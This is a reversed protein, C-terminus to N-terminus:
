LSSGFNRSNAPVYTNIKADVPVPAAQGNASTLQSTPSGAADIWGAGSRGNAEVSLKYHSGAFATKLDALTAASMAGDSASGSRTLVAAIRSGSTQYVNGDAIAGGKFISNGAVDVAPSGLYTYVCLPTRGGCPTWGSSLPGAQNAIVNNVFMEITPTWTLAPTLNVSGTPGYAGPRAMDFDSTYPVNCASKSDGGAGYRVSHDSCWRDVAGNGDSDYRKSRPDTYVGVGVPAGVITNNVLRVGSSGALRVASHGEEEAGTTPAKIYNNVMTLGHSIEYFVSTHSSNTIRNNAVTVDYSSQDWWLGHGWVDQIVSGVVKMRHSKGSKIAGSQPGRSFDRHANIAAFSSARVEADDTYTFVAGMWGADEVSVREFLARRALAAGGSSSGGAVKFSIGANSSFAVDRVTLDDVGSTVILAYKGWSPSHRKVQFGVLRVGDAAVHIFNGNSSSVRVKSLDIADEATVYMRTAAPAPDTGSARDVWFTGPVVKAKDAVQTLLRGDVWVQDPYFATIVHAASTCGDPDASTPSPSTYTSSGTVCRWGKAAALGTPTAGSFKAAPLNALSLGEGIAAPMPQYTFYRLAGETTAQAPAAISGDFVPVEGPYAIITLRARDISVANGVIPYTGGRLVITDGDASAAEAKGLTRFPAALSGTGADSGTPAVYRVTGGLTSLSYSVPLRAGAQGSPALVPAVVTVSKTSSAVGGRDDTVTLKVTYTGAKAYSHVAPKSGSAVSGDGFDWAYSVISGDADTSGSGDVSVALDSVATTFAAVPVKNPAVVSVSKTSSAVGGRDDTVTLKVTYTGAKAYSHVAPKSGSAV